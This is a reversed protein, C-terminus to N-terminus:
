RIRWLIARRSLQVIAEGAVLLGNPSIAWAKGDKANKPPNLSLLTSGQWRFATTRLSNTSGELFGAAAGGDSIAVAHSTESRVEARVIQGTGVDVTWRVARSSSPTAYSSGAVQVLDNTMVSTLSNAYSTVDGGLPPLPVPAGSALRLYGIAIGNPWGGEPRSFVFVAHGANNIDRGEGDVFGQPASVLTLNGGADWMAASNGANGVAQGVDNVGRAASFIASGDGLYTPQSPAGGTITWKVASSTDGAWGVVYRPTGNSIALANGSTGALATLVGGLTVFARHLPSCCSYGVVEGADNVGNARSSNDGPLVGLSASTYGPDSNRAYALTPDAPAAETPLDPKCAAAVMTALALTSLFVNRHRNFARM